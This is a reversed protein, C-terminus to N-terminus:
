SQDNDSISNQKEQYRKKLWWFQQKLIPIAKKEQKSNLIQFGLGYSRWNHDELYNILSKPPKFSFLALKLSYKSTNPRNIVNMDLWEKSIREKVQIKSLNKCEFIADLKEIVIDPNKVQFNSYSLGFPNSQHPIELLNLTRSIARELSIGKKENENLEKGKIILDNELCSLKCIEKQFGEKKCCTCCLDGHCPKQGKFMLKLKKEGCKPCTFAM